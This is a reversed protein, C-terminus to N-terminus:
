SYKMFICNLEYFLYNKNIREKIDNVFDVKAKALITEAKLKADGVISEAQLKAETLLASTDVAPEKKKEAAGKRLKENESILEMVGAKFEDLVADVKNANYYKQKAIDFSISDIYEKTIAM